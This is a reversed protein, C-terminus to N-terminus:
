GMSLSGGDASSFVLKGSTIDNKEYDGYATRNVTLVGDEMTLFYDYYGREELEYYKRGAYDYVVIRDDIMGFGFSVTACFEPLGDGTLDCLYVNWIPMGGFLKEEGSGSDATLDYATCSFTVGPFQDLELDHTKGFPNGDSSYYHDFWKQPTFVAPTNGSGSGDDYPRFIVTWKGNEVEYVVVIALDDNALSSILEGGADYTKAGGAYKYVKSGVPIFNSSLENKRDLEAGWELSAIEGIPDLSGDNYKKALAESTIPEDIQYYMGNYVMLPLFDGEGGDVAPMSAEESLFPMPDTHQGDVRVEFHLQAGYTYGTKGSYGILEGAKVEDGEQVLIEGLHAYLTMLYNGHDIIICQGYGNEKDEDNIIKGGAAAYVPTGEPVPFSIGKYFATEGNELAYSGYPMSITRDEVPYQLAPLGNPFYNSLSAKLEQEQQRLREEEEKMRRVKEAEEPSLETYNNTLEYAASPLELVAKDGGIQLEFGLGNGYIYGETGSYGILDGAKVEDGANVLKESLNAYIASLYDPYGSVDVAIAIAIGYEPSFETNIVTGDASAYVPTGEPVALSVNKRISHVGNKDISEFYPSYAKYVLSGNEVPYIFNPDEDGSFVVVSGSETENEDYLETFRECLNEALSQKHSDEKQQIEETEQEAEQQASGEIYYTNIIKLDDAVYIEAEGFGALELGYGCFNDGSIGEAIEIEAWIDYQRNNGGCMFSVANKNVVRESPPLINDETMFLEMKFELLPSGNEYRVQLDEIVVKTINDPDINIEIDKESSGLTFSISGRDRFVATHTLGTNIYKEAYVLFIKEGRSNELEAYASGKEIMTPPAEESVDKVGNTGLVACATLVIVAAVITAVIRPKKYGLVNKVRGKIGTGAFALPLAALGSRKMSVRVLARSYDKKEEAGLIKLVAEDCSLEMDRTMLFFAAWILPNFWHIALGAFALPKTVFDFRKIHVQEHAIILTREKESLGVPLYIKPPFFGASFATPIRDTEYIGDEAKVSFRVKRMLMSYSIVAYLLMAATGAVWIPLLTGSRETQEAAEENEADPVEETFAEEASLANNDSFNLGANGSYDKYVPDYYTNPVFNHNEAGSGNEPIESRDYGSFDSEPAQPLDEMSISQEPVANFISVTSEVSFPCLCRFFVVAWLLYSWRKPLKKMPIRLLMVAIAAIGATLSAELIIRMINEAM